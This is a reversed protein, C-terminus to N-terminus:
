GSAFIFLYYFNKLKFVFNTFTHIISGNFHQFISEFHIKLLTVTHEVNIM